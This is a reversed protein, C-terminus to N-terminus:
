SRFCAAVQFAAPSMHCRPAPPSDWFHSSILKTGTPSLAVTHRGEAGGEKSSGGRSRRWAESPGAVNDQSYGEAEKGM